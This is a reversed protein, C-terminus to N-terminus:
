IMIVDKQRWCIGVFHVLKPLCISSNGARTSVRSTTHSVIAQCNIGNTDSCTHCAKLRSYHWVPCHPVNCSLVIYLISTVMFSLHYQITICNWFLITWLSPMATYASEGTSCRRLLTKPRKMLNLSDAPVYLSFARALSGRFVPFSLFRTVVVVPSGRRLLNDQMNCRMFSSHNAFACGHFYRLRKEVQNM